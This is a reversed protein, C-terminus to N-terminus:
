LITINYSRVRGRRVGRRGIIPEYIFVVRGNARSSLLLQLQRADCPEINYESDRPADAFDEVRFAM